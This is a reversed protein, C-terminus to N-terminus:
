EIVPNWITLDENLRRPRITNAITDIDINLKPSKTYWEDLHIIDDPQRVAENTHEYLQGKSSYKEWNRKMVSRNLDKANKRSEDSTCIWTCNPYQRYKKCFHSIYKIIAGCEVCKVGRKFYYLYVCCSPEIKTSRM